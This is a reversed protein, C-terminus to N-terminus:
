VGGANIIQMLLAVAYIGIAFHVLSNAGNDAPVTTLKNIGYTYILGSYLMMLGAFFAFSMRVSKKWIPERRLRILETEQNRVRERLVEFYIRLEAETLNGADARMPDPNRGRM